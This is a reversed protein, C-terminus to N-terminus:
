PSKETKELRFTNCERILFQREKCILIKFLQRLAIEGGIGFIQGVIEFRIIIRYRVFCIYIM